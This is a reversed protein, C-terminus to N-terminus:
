DSEYKITLLIIFTCEPMSNKTKCHKKVLLKTYFNLNEIVFKEKSFLRLGIM